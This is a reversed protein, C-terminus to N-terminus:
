YDAGHAIVNFKDQAGAYTHVTARLTSGNALVLGNPFEVVAAFGKVSATPTTAPVEVERLLLVTVGDYVWLRVVNASPASGGVLAAGVVDVRDIRSGNTGATFVLNGAAPTITDRGTTAASLQLLGIKPTAAFTPTTAM